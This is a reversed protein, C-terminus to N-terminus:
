ANPVVKITTITDIKRELSTLRQDINTEFSKLILSVEKLTDAMDKQEATIKVFSEHTYKKDEEYQEKLRLIEASFKQDLQKIDKTLESQEQRNSNALAKIEKSFDERIDKSERLHEEDIHDVKQKMRAYDMSVKVILGIITLISVIASLVAVWQATTM